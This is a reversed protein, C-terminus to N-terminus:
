DSSMHLYRDAFGFIAIAWGAFQVMSAFHLCQYIKVCLTHSDTDSRGDFQPSVNITHQHFQTITNENAHGEGYKGTSKNTDPHAETYWPARRAALMNACATTVVYIGVAACLLIRSQRPRHVECGCRVSAGLLNNARSGGAPLTISISVVSYRTDM